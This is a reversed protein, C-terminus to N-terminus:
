CARRRCRAATAYGRCGVNTAWHLVDDLVTHKGQQKRPDAGLPASLHSVDVRLV